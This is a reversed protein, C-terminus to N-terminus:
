GFVLVLFVFWQVHVQKMSFAFGVSYLLPIFIKNFPDEPPKLDCQIAQLLWSLFEHKDLLGEEFMYNVLRTTYHWLSCQQQYSDDPLLNIRHEHDLMRKSVNAMFQCVTQTWEMCVDPIQTGGRPKKKSTDIQSMKHYADLKITWVARNMPVRHEALAFLLEDRRHFFPIKRGLHHLDKTSSLDNMWSTLQPKVKYHYQFTEM